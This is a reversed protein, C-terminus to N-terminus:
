PKELVSHSLGVVDYGSSGFAAGRFLYQKYQLTIRGGLTEAQTLEQAVKDSAVSFYFIAPRLQHTESDSEMYGLNLEGEWTKWLIGKKSLKQIVGSRTGDSFEVGRNNAFLVPLLLCVLIFGFVSLVIAAQISMRNQRRKM